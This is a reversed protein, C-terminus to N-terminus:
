QVMRTGTVQGARDRVVEKPAQLANAINQLAKALAKSVDGGQAQRTADQAKQGLEVASHISEHQIRVAELQSEAMIKKLGLDHEQALKQNQAQGDMQMKKQAMQTDNQMKSQQLQMDTQAKAKDGEIQAKVKAMEPNEQQPPPQMNEILEELEKSARFKRLTFLSLAKILDQPLPAQALTSLATLMETVNQKEAQDNAAITSDTEVDIIFGRLKENKLLAMVDDWTPTGLMQQVKPDPPPPQQPQGDPGPQQAQMQAMQMQQQAMAKQEPTPLQLGTMQQLTQVSFHEAIVEAKLRLLDRAFRQVEIQRPAIRTQAYQAKIGQAAATENPDSAGRIIDGIGEVEYITQKVQERQEMLGLIVKALNEIPLENFAAALGGKEVLAAYNTVPVFKNDAASALEELEPMSGDYVGRRRLADTLVNIRNTLLDLEEAQDQYQTYEPVPVMSDSTQIAYMPRPIPWFDTLKLPDDQQKLPAIPYGGCIVYVRKDAKNWITWVLARQKREDKSSENDKDKESWDLKIQDGMEKGFERVCDERTLLEGFALWRVKSWTKCPSIRFLEYGVYDCRVEEYSLQEYSEMMKGASDAKATEAYVPKDGDYGIPEAEKDMKVFSPVYKVKANARGPLLVDSVCQRMVHDFDYADIAYTLARTLVEAAVRGVAEAEKWRRRVDPIPPRQYMVGKLVETNAYLINFRTDDADKDDREDRYRRVVEPARTERWQKEPGNTATELEKLWFKVLDTM